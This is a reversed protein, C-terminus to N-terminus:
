VNMYKRGVTLSLRNADRGSGADIALDHVPMRVGRYEDAPRTLYIEIPELM